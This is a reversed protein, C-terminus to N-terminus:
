VNRIIEVPAQQSRDCACRISNSQFSLSTKVLSPELHVVWRAVGTPPRPVVNYNNTDKCHSMLVLWSSRITDVTTQRPITHFNHVSGEHSCYFPRKTETLRQACGNCGIVPSCADAYLFYSRKASYLM